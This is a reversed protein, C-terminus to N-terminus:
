ILNNLNDGEWHEDTNDPPIQFRSFGFTVRYENKDKGIRGHLIQILRSVLSCM